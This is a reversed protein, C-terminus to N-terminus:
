GSSARLSPRMTVGGPRSPASRPATARLASRPVTSRATPGLRPVSAAIAKPNRRQSEFAVGPLSLTTVSQDRFERSTEDRPPVAPCPSGTNQRNLPPKELCPVILRFETRAVPIRTSHCCERPNSDGVRRRVEGRAGAPSPGTSGTITRHISSRRREYTPTRATQRASGGASRKPHRHGRTDRRSRAGVMPHCGDTVGSM